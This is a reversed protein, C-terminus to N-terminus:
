AVASSYGQSSRTLVEAMEQICTGAWRYINNAQVVRRAESMRRMREFTPMKLSNAVASCLSTESFPNVTVATKLERAAGAFKSLILVGDGDFRSAVFEKAVLNMGDHLPTVMCFAALRHLAMMEVPPLNRRELLIPQWEASRFRENIAAAQAEVTHDLEAYGPIASRSPVAVQVFTLRERLGPNDELLKGIAALREPIGKTYDCRDIGVGVHPVGGLRARWGQMMNDVASSQALRDHQDFDISIPADKVVTTHGRRRVACGDASAGPLLEASAMFNECYSRLHFGIFDCGLMGGLLQEAWPFTQLM